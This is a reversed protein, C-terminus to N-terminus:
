IFNGEAPEEASAGNWHTSTVANAHAAVDIKASSKACILPTPLPTHWRTSM